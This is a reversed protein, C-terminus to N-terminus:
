KRVEKVDQYVPLTFVLATGRPLNNEAWIKGGQAEIIGKCISLGLGTGATGSLQRGRYFKDFVHPLDEPLIGAGEDLVRIEVTEGHQRASISIASNAGSFKCSNELLNVLVQGTLVTDMSVTPLEPPIDVALTRKAILGVMQNIVAGVLDQVDGPQSKIHIIGSELRTMALLNEVLRNLTDAQQTASDILEERVPLALKGNGTGARESEALSTLVGTITALPTRLQHSISNLLASQLREATRLTEVQVVQQAFKAREIALAALNTLGELLTRQEQTLFGGSLQSQIGLIGTVGEPTKLPIFRSQISSHTETGKGSPQANQFAWEAASWEEEDLTYGATAAQQHLQTEGAFLIGIEGGFIIGF